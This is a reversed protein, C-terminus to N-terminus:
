RAQRQDVASVRGLQRGDAALGSAAAEHQDDRRLPEVARGAEHDVRQRDESSRARSSCTATDIRTTM